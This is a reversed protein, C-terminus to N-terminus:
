VECLSLVCGAMTVRGSTIECAKKKSEEDTTLCSTERVHLYCIAIGLFLLHIHFKSVYVTLRFEKTINFNNTEYLRLKSLRFLFKRLTNSDRHQLLINSFM